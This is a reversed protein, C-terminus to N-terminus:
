FQLDRLNHGDSWIDPIIFGFLYEDKVGKRINKDVGQKPRLQILM